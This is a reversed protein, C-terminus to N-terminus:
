ESTGPRITHLRLLPVFISSTQEDDRGTPVDGIGFERLAFVTPTDGGIMVGSMSVQMENVLSSSVVSRIAVEGPFGRM